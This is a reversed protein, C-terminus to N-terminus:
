AAPAAPIGEEISANLEIFDLVKGTLIDQQIEPFANREQLVKVMKEPTTNNQQAIAVVRQSLERQDISIKENEAIRNLIFAAKVRDKASVSASQFIEDKKGEIVEQPVGRRQNENVINYVLNRTESAVVSEPLEVTVQQLLAQLLQDRVAKKVRFDIENQLDRRVGSLLAELNEAGFGQAFADDATPLVKEKVGVVEVEFQGAKGAVETVVFDAPFTLSVTRKDGASAGILQQTFGPIFSNEAIQVWTNQKETLGKATANFDTIPKGEATGKYNVVLVDGDQAARQVDNYKVQQERLIGVAREVDAESAVAAERKAKLGKYTPLEFDPTHELTVTYGFPVGRGFSQEEVDITVIVRIKQEEAAARYSDEFLKKRVEEAIRGDFSKVVLHRPAKGPRFGPLQAQKQFASTLEDFAANVKEVPVEVRLLKKCPGLNEVSVNVIKGKLQRESV